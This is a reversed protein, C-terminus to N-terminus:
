FGTGCSQSCSLRDGTRTAEGAATPSCEGTGACSAAIFTPGTWTMRSAVNRRSCWICSRHPRNLPCTVAAARVPLGSAVDTSSCVLPIICEGSQARMAGAANM